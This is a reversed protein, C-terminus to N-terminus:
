QLAKNVYIMKMNADDSSDCVSGHKLYTETYSTATGLAEYYRLLTRFKNM